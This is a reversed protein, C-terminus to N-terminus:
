RVGLHNKVFQAFKAPTFGFHDALAAAPGSAGFGHMAYIAGDRGVIEGWGQPVGAEVAILPLEKPLLASLAVPNRALVQPCPSSVVRVSLQIKEGSLTAFSGAELDKATQLALQVESGSAVLVLKRQASEGGFEKVVYGGSRMAQVVDERTRTAGAEDLDPLDQRTLLLATPTQTEQLACQWAAFTEMGDAPRFVNLNPIARLAAAQEVPQHTPGDEGVAYSDHTFLFITPTRMLAALRVPPRMYDSFVAFTACYPRLGGHLSMGNAVAGMGHERVGFHVNRGAFEAPNVFGAGDLTTNNSGALDASGGVLLPNVKALAALAKGSAVRTAMKGKASMWDSEPIEVVTAKREFSAEFLALKTPNSKAWDDKAAKVRADWEVRKQRRLAVLSAAQARMEEPVHFPTTNAVGLSKKADVVDEASMPNGHVKHKGEWKPSGKGAVGKCIVLTPGTTGAAQRANEQAKELATALSVFDNGDARLVNWGYAEHRKGVDETFSLDTNGDITISNDDYLAVLKNLRLHGALSCAESSVGEMMCGDGLIVYTNHDVLTHKADNIRAQLMREALAIGVANAIGQGLPGTTVEVGPTHNFEPHGPTISGLQRFKVIQDLPLDYGAMHLLSYQLMSGHGASLVFRDRNVWQPDRPDHNMVAFYLVTGMEAGGLPLGVHGSKSQLVADMGLIRVATAVDKLATLTKSEKVTSLLSSNSSTTM